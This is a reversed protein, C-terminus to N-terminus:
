SAAVTAGSRSCRSLGLLLAGALIALLAVLSMTLSDVGTRALGGSSSIAPTESSPPTFFATATGQRLAVTTV